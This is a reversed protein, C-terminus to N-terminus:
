QREEPAREIRNVGERCIRKESDSLSEWFDMSGGCQQSYRHGWMYMALVAPKHANLNHAAVEPLIIKRPANKSM